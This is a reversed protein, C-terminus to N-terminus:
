FQEDVYHFDIDMMEVLKNLEFSFFFFVYSFAGVKRLFSRFSFKDRPNSFTLNKYPRIQTEKAVFNGPEECDNYSFFEDGSLKSVSLHLAILSARSLGCM